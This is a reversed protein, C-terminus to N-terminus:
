GFMEPDANALLALGFYKYKGGRKQKEFRKGALRGFTKQAPANRGIAEKWWEVFEKYLDTANVEYEPGVVCCEDVFDALLDEDRKYEATAEKVIPPPNLGEKQWQLCGKVLWALIGPYEKELKSPLERDRRRENEESPERDVFSLQFPILHVREWFAFDDAPAHPKNNTLLFLTHTPLFNTEYKDHPNRGKLADGGTLWKVRSPSIRRGQDTESAFAIRLGKLSMIDPSPGATGRAKGQDLLMESQIPSALEGLVRTITEVIMTKGNRGQGHLVPFIHEIDLGTSAYGFLRQVYEVLDTNESFIEFLAKEWTPCEAEFGQWEVSTSKLLYDDPRGPRFLGTELDIVGNVCPLLLPKTDLEEGRISLPNECQHAFNLCSKRGAGSRLKSVRRYLNKILSDDPEKGTKQAKDYARSIEELYANCVEEVAYHSREMVDMAWHHGEWALYHDMNQCFIYKDRNIHAYLIGDGLENANLCKRVFSSSLGGGSGGDQEDGGAEEALRREEVRRRIDVM